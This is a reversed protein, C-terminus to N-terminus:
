DEEDERNPAASFFPKERQLERAHHEEVCRGQWTVEYTYGNGRLIIGTVVGPSDDTIHYVTAYLEFAPPTNSM